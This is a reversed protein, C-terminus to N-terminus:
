VQPVCPMRAVGMEEAEQSLSFGQLCPFLCLLLRMSDYDVTGEAYPVSWPMVYVREM